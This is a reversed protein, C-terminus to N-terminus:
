KKAPKKKKKTDSELMVQYNQNKSRRKNLGVYKYPDFPTPAYEPVPALTYQQDDQPIPSRNDEMLLTNPKM